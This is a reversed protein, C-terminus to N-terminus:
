NPKPFWWFAAHTGSPKDNIDLVGFKSLESHLSNLLDRSQAKDVQLDTSSNSDAGSKLTWHLGPPQPTLVDRIGQARNLMLRADTDPDCARLFDRVGLVQDNGRKEAWVKNGNYKLIEGNIPISADWWFQSYPFSPQMADLRSLWLLYRRSGRYMFDYHDLDNMSSWIVNQGARWRAILILTPVVHCCLEHAAVEMWGQTAYEHKWGVNNFNIIFRFRTNARDENTFQNLKDEIEGGSVLVNWKDTKPDHYCTLTEGDDTSMHGTKKRQFTILGGAPINCVATCYQLLSYQLDDPDPIVNQRNYLNMIRQAEGAEAPQDVQGLIELAQNLNTIDINANRWMRDEAEDAGTASSIWRITPGEM